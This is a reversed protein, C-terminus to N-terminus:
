WAHQQQEAIPVDAGSSVGWQRAADTLTRLRGQRVAGDVFGAPWLPSDLLVWELKNQKNAVLWELLLTFEPLMSAWEQPRVVGAAGSGDDSAAVDTGQLLELLELPHETHVHFSRTVFHPVGTRNADRLAAAGAGRLALPLVPELPHLFSFGLEELAEYVAYLTGLVLPAARAGARKTLAGRACVTAAGDGRLVFSEAPLGHLEDDPVLEHCASTNGVSLTLTPAAGSAAAFPELLAALRLAPPTNSVDPGMVLRVAVSSATTGAQPAINARVAHLCLQLALALARPGRTRASPAHAM